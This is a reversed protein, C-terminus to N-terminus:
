DQNVTQKEVMEGSQYDWTYLKGAESWLDDYILVLIREDELWQAQALNEIWTSALIEGTRDMVTLQFFTSGLDPFDELATYLLKNCNNHWNISTIIRVLGTDMLEPLALQTWHGDTDFILIENDGAVALENHSNRSAAVAAPTDVAYVLVPIIIILILWLLIILLLWGNKRPM